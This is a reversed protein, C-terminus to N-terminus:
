NDDMKLAAIFAEQTADEAEDPDDLISLALRYVFTYYHQVLAEAVVPDSVRSRQLLQEINLSVPLKRTIPDFRFGEARTLM